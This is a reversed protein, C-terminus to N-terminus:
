EDEQLDLLPMFGTDYKSPYDVTVKIFDCINKALDQVVEATRLNAPRNDIKAFEEDIIFQTNIVKSGLPVAEMIHNGDDKYFQMIYSTLNNRILQLKLCRAWIIMLNMLNFEYMHNELSVRMLKELAMSLM